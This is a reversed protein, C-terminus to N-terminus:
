SAPTTTSASSTSRRPSRTATAPSNSRPASATTGAGTGIPLSWTTPTAGGSCGTSSGGTGSATSTASPTPTLPRTPRRTPPGATSRSGSGPASRMPGFPPCQGGTPSCSTTRRPWGGLRSTRPRPRGRPPRRIRSGMARQPHDVPHHSRGAGRKRRRCLPHIRRRHRAGAVRGPGRAGPTSGLSLPHRIAHHRQRPARGRPPRLVRPAAAIPVTPRVMSRRSGSAAASSGETPRPVPSRAAQIPRM